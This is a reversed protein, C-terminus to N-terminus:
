GFCREERKDRRVSTGGSEERECEKVGESVLTEGECGPVASGM